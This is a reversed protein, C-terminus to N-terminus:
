RSADGRRHESDSRDVWGLILWPLFTVAYHGGNLWQFLTVTLVALSALALSDGRRVALGYARSFAIVVFVLYVVLGPIGLAVAANSVDVETGRAEGGFKVGALNVAGVGLGLPEAVITRLGEAVISLHIPLTSSEPDLPDAFGAVQHAVLAGGSEPEFAASAARAALPLVVLSAAAVVLAIAIPLRRRAAAIIALALVLGVLVGRASAYLVAAALLGVVPLSILFRRRTLGFVLWVLVAVGLFAAYESAASFTAFPRYTGEVGPAFVYLSEYGSERIWTADWRPFGLFVQWLGYLAAPIGLVGALKLVSALTADDCLQRGVWFALMPVLVFLLGAVGTILDGQLPNAAGAVVLLTLILVCNSLSTSQRLAGRHTAVLFLVTLAAPGVLLLADAEGPPSLESVLRRTLGLAALWVFLGYLLDRPAWTGVGFTLAALGAALAIRFGRPDLVSAAVAVSLVTVLGLGALSRFLPADVVASSARSWATM